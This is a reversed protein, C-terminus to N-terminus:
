DIIQTSPKTNPFYFEKRKKAALSTYIMDSRDSKNTSLISSYPPSARLYWWISDFIAIQMIHHSPTGGEQDKIPKEHQQLAFTHTLPPLVKHKKVCTMTSTIKKLVSASTMTSTIEQINQYITFSIKSCRHKWNELCMILSWSTFSPM